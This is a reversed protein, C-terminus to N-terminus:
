LPCFEVVIKLDLSIVGHYNGLQNPFVEYGEWGLGSTPVTAWILRAQSYPVGSAVFDAWVAQSWSAVCANAAATSGLIGALYAYPDGGGANIGVFANVGTVPDSVEIPTTTTDGVCAFAAPVPWVPPTNPPAPPEPPVPPTPPPPGPLPPVTIVPPNPCGEISYSFWPEDCGKLVQCTESTPCSKQVSDKMIEAWSHLRNLQLFGKWAMFTQFEYGTRTMRETVPSCVDEPEPLRIFTRYQEKVDQFTPCGDTTCDKVPACLSFSHWDNWLPDEDSRYKFTLDVTNNGALRDIYVDNCLLRKLENGDDGWGMSRTIISSEVGVTTTGNLDFYGADDKLLEWLEIAGDCRLCFAFCREVTGFTGKLVKLIKLGTWLGDYAPQSRTTLTSINNFDLAILGWHTTGRSRVNFPATTILLRNNFLVGSAKGLLEETDRHLIKEVEVSLPTQVWTNQDRRGIQYSRIGDTARYWIDGNVTVTAWQSLSGYNPLGVTMLPYETSAWQIRDLPVQVSFVSSQTMVQLSGQGLSTDAIAVSSMANILGADVPIGFAGGGSLFTNEDTKLISARGDYGDNFGLSYVLDGAAFSQRDPFTYWMRGQVYAGMCCVPIEQGADGLSRRLKAGDFFLPNAEGNAIVLFNEGQWMWCDPNVPNNVDGTITIDQVTASAGSGIVYRFVRGGISSILCNEGPGYARYFLAEQFLAETADTQNTGQAYTLAMKRWVPRTKPLGGRFTVNIAFAVQDKPLLRPQVGCNMGSRIISVGDLVARSAPAPM